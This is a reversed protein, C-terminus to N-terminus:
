PVIISTELQVYDSMIQGTAENRVPLPEDTDARSLAVTLHYEGPSVNEPVPIQHREALVEGAQWLEDFEAQSLLGDSTTTVLKGDPALLAFRVRFDQVAIAPQPIDQMAQWYLTSTALHSKEPSPHGLQYGILTVTDGYSIHLPLAEPPLVETALADLAETPSILIPSGIEPVFVGLEGQPALIDTV